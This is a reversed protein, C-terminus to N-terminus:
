AEKSLSECPGLRGLQHRTRRWSPILTSIRCLEECDISTTASRLISFRVRKRRAPIAAIPEGKRRDPACVIPSVALRDARRPATARNPRQFPSVGGGSRVLEVDTEEVDEDETAPLEVERTPAGTEVAGATELGEGGSEVADEEVATCPDCHVTECPPLRPSATTVVRARLIPVLTPLGCCYRGLLRVM